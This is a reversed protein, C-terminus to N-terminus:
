LFSFFSFRKVLYFFNGIERDSYGIIRSSCLSTDSISCMRIAKGTFDREFLKQSWCYVLMSPFIKEGRLLVLPQNAHLSIWNRLPSFLFFSFFFPCFGIGCVASQYRSSPALHTPREGRIEIIYEFSILKGIPFFTILSSLSNTNKSYIINLCITQILKFTNRNTRTIKM